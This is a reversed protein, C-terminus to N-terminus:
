LQLHTALAHMLTSTYVCQCTNCCKHMYWNVLVCRCVCNGMCVYTIVAQKVISSVPDAIFRSAYCTSITNLLKRILWYNIVLSLKRLTNPASHWAQWCLVRSCAALWVCCSSQPRPEKVSRSRWSSWWRILNLVQCSSWDSIWRTLVHRCNDHVQTPIGVHVNVRGHVFVSCMYCAVLGTVCSWKLNLYLSVHGNLCHVPKSISWPTPEFIASAVLSPQKIRGSCLPIRCMHLWSMASQLCVAIACLWLKRILLYRLDLVLLDFLMNVALCCLRETFELGTWLQKDVLGTAGVSLHLGWLPM